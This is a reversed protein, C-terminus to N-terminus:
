MEISQTSATIANGMEATGFIAAQIPKVGEEIHRTINELVVIANDVIMGSCFALGALSIINLSRGFGYLLIFVSVVCIPITLVVVLLSRWSRLFTLLVISALVGGALLNGWALGM